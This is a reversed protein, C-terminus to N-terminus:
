PFTSILTGRGAPNSMALPIVWELDCVMEERSGTSEVEVKEEERGKLTDLIDDGVVSRFYYVVWDKGATRIVPGWDWETLGVEEEGERQMAEGPSEGEEIKGGIGNLKGKQWEPKQKRLLAVRTYDENFVLGVVYRMM